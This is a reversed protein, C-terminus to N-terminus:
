NARLKPRRCTLAAACAASLLLLSNPEPLEGSTAPADGFTLNDYFMLGDIESAFMVANATGSFLVTFHNWKCAAQGVQEDRCSLSEDAPLSLTKGIFSTTGDSYLITLNMATEDGNANRGLIQVQTASGFDSAAFDVGFRSLFGGVVDIRFAGGESNPDQDAITLANFGSDVSKFNAQSVSSSSEFSTLVVNKGYFSFRGDYPYAGSLVTEDPLLNQGGKNEFDLTAGAFTGASAMTLTLAVLTKITNM